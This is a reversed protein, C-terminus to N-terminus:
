GPRFRERQGENLPIYRTEPSEWSPFLSRLFSTAFRHGRSRAARGAGPPPPVVARSPIYDAAPRDFLEPPLYQVYYVPEPGPGAPQPRLSPRLRRPRPRRSAALVTSNARSRGAVAHPAIQRSRQPYEGSSNTVRALQELSPRAPSLSRGEGAEGPGRIVIVGLDDPGRVPKSGEPVTEATPPPPPPEAHRTTPQADEKEEEEQETDGDSEDEMRHKSHDTPRPQDDLEGTRGPPGDPNFFAQDVPPRRHQLRSGLLRKPGEIAGLSRVHNSQVDELPPPDPITQM